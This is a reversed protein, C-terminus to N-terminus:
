LSWRNLAGLRAKRRLAPHMTASGSSWLMGPSDAASDSTGAGRATHIKKGLPMSMFDHRGVFPLNIEGVKSGSAL